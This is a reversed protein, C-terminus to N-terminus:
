AEDAEGVAVPESAGRDAGSSAGCAASGPSGGAARVGPPRTATRRHPRFAARRRSGLRARRSRLLARHLRDLAPDPRVVTRGARTRLPRGALRPRACARRPRGAPRHGADLAVVHPGAAAVAMRAAVSAPAPALVREARHRRAGARRAVLRPRTAGWRTRTRRFAARAPPGRARRALPRCGAAALLGLPLLAWDGAVDSGPRRRGHIAPRGPEPWAWLAWSPASRWGSCSGARTAACPPALPIRRRRCRAFLDVVAAFFPLLAAILVLQIAWGEIVRPGLYVRASTDRGFEAGQALSTVLGQAARGLAGLHPGVFTTPSDRFDAPRRGREHDPDGRARRGGGAAGARLVLAPLGLDELQQLASARAPREGTQELVHM